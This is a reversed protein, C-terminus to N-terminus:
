GAPSEVRGAPVSLSVVMLPDILEANGDLDEVWALRGKRSVWLFDPHAITFARGDALHMTFPIFPQARQAERIEEIRM